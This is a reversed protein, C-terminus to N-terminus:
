ILMFERAPAGRAREAGHTRLNPRRLRQSYPRKRRIISDASVDRRAASRPSNASMGRRIHLCVALVAATESRWTFIHRQISQEIHCNFHVLENQHIRQNDDDDYDVNCAHLWGAREENAAHRRRQAQQLGFRQRGHQM